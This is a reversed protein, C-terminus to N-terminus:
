AEGKRLHRVLFRAPHLAEAIDRPLPWPEGTLQAAILEAALWSSVLGHSGHGVSLMLGPQYRAPQFYRATKGEALGAFQEAYAATEPVPGVLPLRDGTTARFAVRGALDVNKLAALSPVAEGLRALIEAQSRASLATDSSDHEYSAGICLQGELPPIVYGGYCVPVRPVQALRSADAHCLQGRVRNLPLDFGPLLRKAERGNALIVVPARALESDGSCLRWQRAVRELRLVEQGLVLELGPMAALLAQCLQRPRVYGALPYHLAAEANLGLGALREAQERELPEVVEAPLGLEAIQAQRQCGVLDLVGSQWWPLDPSEGRWANLVAQAHLFASLYFRAQVSMDRSLRPMLLGALNGSAGRAVAREREILTVQWGRQLLSHACSLGAIGGGIVLVRSEAAVPAPAFWPAPDRATSEHGQYSAFLNHRKRGFGPQKNVQFGREGLGRRVPGAVTFSAVTTGPRSLRAMHRFLEASWMAPNHRPAFGDLFWADVRAQLQSLCDVADGLLLLLRVRGGYLSRPHFGPVLPPYQALLEDALGSLEKWPSLARRLDEPLLPHKEVAIYYLVASSEAVQLWLDVAALFNLGTGFGTELVTFPKGRGQWRQPLRNLKLFIERSEQLGGERSFYVDGFLESYPGEPRWDLRAPSLRQAAWGPTTGLDTSM